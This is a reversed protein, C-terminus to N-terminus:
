NWDVKYANFDAVYFGLTSPYYNKNRAVKIYIQLPHTGTINSKLTADVRWTGGADTIKGLPTIKMDRDLIDWTENKNARAEYGPMITAYFRSYVDDGAACYIACSRSGSLLTEGSACVTRDCRKWAETNEDKNECIHFWDHVFNGVISEQMTRDVSYERINTSNGVIKWEADTASILYPKLRDSRASWILIGCLFVILVFAIATLIAMFRSIAVSRGAPNAPNDFNGPYEM